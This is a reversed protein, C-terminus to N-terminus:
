QQLGVVYGIWLCTVERSIQLRIEQPTTDKVIGDYAIDGLPKRLCPNALVKERVEEFTLIKMEYVPIM